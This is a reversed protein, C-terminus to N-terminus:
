VRFGLSFPVVPSGLTAADRSAKSASSDDWEGRRTDM